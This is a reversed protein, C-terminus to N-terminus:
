RVIKEGKLVKMSFEVPVVFSVAVPKGHQKGPKWDPMSKIVRVAENDLLPSVSRKVRVDTVKGTSSVVFAVEVLGSIKAAVAEEPYRIKGNIWPMMAEPGGPFEPMEEVVVFTEKDGKDKGAIREGEYKVGEVKKTTIEVVGNKGATGYTKEASEGKLVKVSNIEDPSIDSFSKDSKVGDVVILADKLSEASPPPPPPPPPMDSQSKGPPPPPPPDPTVQIKKMMVSKLQMRINFEDKGSVSVAVTEYGVFSIVLMGDDPVNKLVFHGQKDAVTGETTGKIVIVAGELLAGDESMVVGQITKGGSETIETGDTEDGAAVVRYQPEAFAYLVIAAVPLIILLRLKRYPSSIKNKMMNFRKKNLSFSFFNGLDIVPSGAIQNLLAARYVAPDSTRQLAEEDALYEHNQRVFRYYVWAAPNFWQVACLIGSLMLDLWHMQRIHVMEHNMIERAETESVSPNVVVFSFLSFSDPFESSRILQVPFGPEPKSNRLAKLVPFVQIVYRTLIVLVGVVWLGNIIYVINGPGSGVGHTGTRLAGATAGAQVAPIDVYYRVSILPLILSALIGAVLYIRNLHFFRENRLFLLYVLGFGTTWVASKVLYFGIAEM